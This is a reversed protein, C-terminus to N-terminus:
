EFDDLEETLYGLPHAKLFLVSILNVEETQMYKKRFCHSLLVM